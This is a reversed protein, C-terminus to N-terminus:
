LGSRVMRKKVSPKLDRKAVFTLNKMKKFCFYGTKNNQNRPLIDKLFKGTEVVFRGERPIFLPTIVSFRHIIKSRSVHDPDQTLEDADNNNM